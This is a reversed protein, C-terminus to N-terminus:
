LTFREYKLFNDFQVMPFKVVEVVICSGIIRQSYTHFIQSCNCHTACYIKNKTVVVANDVKNQVQITWFSISQSIKHTCFSKEIERCFHNDLDEIRM